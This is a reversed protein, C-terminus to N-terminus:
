YPEWKTPWRRGSDPDAKLDDQAWKMMRWITDTARSMAQLESASLEGSRLDKLGDEMMKVLHGVGAEKLRRAAQRKRSSARVGRERWEAVEPDHAFCYGSASVRISGCVEGNRKTAPCPDDKKAIHEREMGMMERQSESWQTVVTMAAKAPIWRIRSDRGPFM